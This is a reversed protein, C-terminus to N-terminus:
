ARGAQKAADFEEDSIAYGATAERLQRARALAAAPDVRRARVAREICVIVESNISRRNTEASRRLQEYLDDPINKLTITAM